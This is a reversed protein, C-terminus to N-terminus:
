PKAANMMLAVLTVALVPWTVVAIGLAWLFSLLIDKVSLCDLFAPVM